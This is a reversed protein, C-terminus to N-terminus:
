FLYHHNNIRKLRQGLYIIKLLFLNHLIARCYVESVASCHKRSNVSSGFKQKLAFIMSEVISHHNYTKQPFSKSLKQRYFGRTKSWKHLPAVSKCDHKALYEHLWEADYAKDMVLVKPKHKLCSFLPKVDLIDHRPRTRLKLSLVKRRRVDVLLSLKYYRKVPRVRNIRKVYHWSPNSGALGTGDVAGLQVPHKITAKLLLRWIMLPIRQAQYCLTSKSAVKFGLLSLTKKTRRYSLKCMARVLLAFAHQWFEYYKPGKNHLWRPIKAKRLLRKVKYILKNTNKM